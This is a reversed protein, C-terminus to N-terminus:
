RSKLTNDNEPKTVFLDVNYSQKIMIMKNSVDMLVNHSVQVPFPWSMEDRVAQCRNFTILRENFRVM